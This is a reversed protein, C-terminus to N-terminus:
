LLDFLKEKYEEETIDGNDRMRKLEEIKKRKEEYAKEEKIEEKRVESPTNMIIIDPILMSIFLLLWSLFSGFFITIGFGIYYQMISRRFYKGKSRVSYLLLISGALGAAFSIVSYFINSSNTLLYMYGNNILEKQLQKDTLLIISIILSAAISILNVVAGAIILGRKTKNMYM